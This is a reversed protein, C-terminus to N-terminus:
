RFHCYITHFFESEFVEEYIQISSRYVTIRSTVERISELSEEERHPRFIKSEDICIVLTEFESESFIFFSFELCICFIDIYSSCVIFGISISCHDWSILLKKITMVIDDTSDIGSSIERWGEFLQLFSNELIICCTIRLFESLEERTICPM